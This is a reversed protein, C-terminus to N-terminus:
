GGQAAAGADGGHRDAGPEPGPGAAAAHVGRPGAVRHGGPNEGGVRRRECCLFWSALRSPTIHHHWGAWSRVEYHAPGAERKAAEFVEEVKHRTFRVRVLEELSVEPGADSLAYHTKPEAEVTRMVVLREEPGNRRDLKTRVRVTM